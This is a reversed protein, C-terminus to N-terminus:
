IFCAHYSVCAAVALHSKEHCLEKTKIRWEVVILKRNDINMRKGFKSMMSLGFHDICFVAWETSDVGFIYFSQWYKPAFM